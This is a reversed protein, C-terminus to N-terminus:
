MRAYRIDVRFCVSHPKPLASSCPRKASFCTGKSNDGIPSLGRAIFHQAPKRRAGARSLVTVLFATDALDLDDMMRSPRGGTYWAFNAPRRLVVADVAHREMLEHLREYRNM